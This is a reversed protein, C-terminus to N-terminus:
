EDDGGKLTNRARYFDSVEFDMFSAVEDGEDDRVILSLKDYSAFGETESDMFDAVDAFPELAAELREIYAAAESMLADLDHWDRENQMPDRLRSKIDTM